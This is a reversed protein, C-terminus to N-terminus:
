LRGGIWQGLAAAAVGFVEDGVVVDAVGSGVATVVGAAELGPVAPFAPTFVHALDGRRLKLDILNLGTARVAIAIQGAGPQPADSDAAGLVEPGGYREYQIVFSM